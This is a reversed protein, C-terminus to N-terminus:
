RRGGEALYAFAARPPLARVLSGPLADRAAQAAFDFCAGAWLRGWGTRDVGSGRGHGLAIRWPVPDHPEAEAATSRRARM